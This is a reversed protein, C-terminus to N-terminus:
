GVGRRGLGALARHAVRNLLRGLLNSGCEATRLRARGDAGTGSPLMRSNQDNARGGSPTLPTKLRIRHVQTRPTKHRSRGM